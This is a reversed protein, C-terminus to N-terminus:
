RGAAPVEAERAVRDGLAAELRVLRQELAEITRDRVAIERQLAQTAALAVGAVDSPALQRESTGFGFARYFDEAVPGIHRDAADSRLYNWTWIPLEALGALLRDGAVAVFGTKSTRSSLQTLTGAIYADGDVHLKAQPASIGIGVNGTASIDISSTPAGPRIRFPLRSGNTVDRVFFNAENGAIDWTQATFGSAATQELRHAPTNSTTIQLDLGPTSTGLGVKGNSAVFLSSSPAGAMLTFPVTAATLDEISFRSVGGSSSDNAVLQWDNAPFGATASTDDFRIRTNNAKLLLNEFSFVENNLCDSGACINGQVILDDAIVQDNPRPGGTSPAVSETTGAIVVKGDVIAFSGLAPALVQPMGAPAVDSGNRRADAAASAVAADVKPVFLIEYRYLGDGATAGIVSRPDIAAADVAHAIQRERVSGDPLVIRVSAGNANQPVVTRLVGDAAVVPGALILSSAIALGRMMGRM